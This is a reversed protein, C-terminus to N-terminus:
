FLFGFVFCSIYLCHRCHDSKVTQTIFDSKEAVPQRVLLLRHLDLAAPPHATEFSLSIKELSAVVNVYSCKKLQYSSISFM